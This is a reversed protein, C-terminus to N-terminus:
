EIVCMSVFEYITHSGGCVSPLLLPHLPSMSDRAGLQWMEELGTLLCLTQPLQVKGERRM